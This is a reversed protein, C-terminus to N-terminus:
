ASHSMVTGMPESVGGYRGYTASSANQAISSAQEAANRQLSSEILSVNQEHSALASDLLGFLEEQQEPPFQRLDEKLKIPGQPYEYIRNLTGQALRLAYPLSEVNNLELLGHLNDFSDVIGKLFSRLDMFPMPSLTQAVQM